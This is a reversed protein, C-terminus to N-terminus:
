AATPPRGRGRRTWLRWWPRPPEPDPLDQLQSARLRRRLEVEFMHAIGFAACDGRGARTRWIRAQVELEDDGLRALTSPTPEEDSKKKHFM